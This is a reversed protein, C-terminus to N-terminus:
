PESQNVHVDEDDFEVGEESAILSRSLGSLSISEGSTLFYNKWICLSCLGREGPSLLLRYTYLCEDTNKSLWFIDSYFIAFRM